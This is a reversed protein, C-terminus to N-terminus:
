LRIRTRLREISRLVEELQRPSDRLAIRYFDELRDLTRSAVIRRARWLPIGQAAALQRAEANIAQAMRTSAGRGRALGPYLDDWLEHLIARHTNTPLDVLRQPRMRGRVRGRGRPLRVSRIGSKDFARLFMRFVPHHREAGVLIHAVSPSATPVDELHTLGGRSPIGSLEGMEGAIMRRNAMNRLDDLAADPNPYQRIFDDIGREGTHIGFDSPDVGEERLDDLIGRLRRSQAPNLAGPTPLSCIEPTTSFRCWAGSRRNRRWRHGNGLNVEADYEGRAIRRPSTNRVVDLEANMEHPTLEGGSKHATARLTDRHPGIAERDPRGRRLRDRMSRVRDRVARVARGPAEVIARGAARLGRGARRPATVLRRRFRRMTARAAGPLARATQRALARSGGAATRAAVTRGARASLNRIGAQAGKAGVISMAAQFGGNIDSQIEGAERQLEEATQATAADILNKILSLAQLVLAIKGVAITWGGVTTIITACVSIVPLAIPAAFGFTVLILAGMIAAVIAALATISGLIIALGTAIDAASKLLNGLPDRRWQEASFLNAGGSLIMNLGGVAGAIMSRPDLLAKALGGWGPWRINSVAGFYRQGVLRMAIGLREGAGLQSIPRGGALQNIRDLEALRQEEAAQAAQERQEASQPDVGTVWPPMEHLVDIQSRQGAAGEEPVEITELGETAAGEPSTAAAGEAGAGEVEAGEEAGPAAEPEEPTEGEEAQADAAAAPDFGEAQAGEPVSAVEPAIAPAPAAAANAMDLSQGSAATSAPTTPTPAPVPEAGGAPGAAGPSPGVSTEEEEPLLQLVGEAAGGGAEMEGEWPELAPVARTNDAYREQSSRLQAELDFSSAILAQGQQDLQEAQAHLEDPAGSMSEVQSRADAAQTQHESLRQDLQDLQQTGSDITSRSQTNLEAARAADAALSDARGRTQSVASDMTQSEAGVQEIQGGQERANAAAEEDEPANAANEAALSGAEGAMPGTDEKGEDAKSQFDPAQSAVQAQKEESVGLAQEAQGVVERRYTAHDQSKSIGEEAKSVEASVKALNGRTTEANSHGEAAQARLQTGQERFYQARAALGFMAEDAAPNADLPDGASDVPAIPVPPDVAVEPAPETQSAATAFAQDALSSAQEAAGIAEEGAGEEGQPQEAQEGEVLPDPPSEAEQEVTAASQNIGPSEEAPRDVDPRTDGSVEGKKAALEGRDVQNAKRRAEAPNPREQESEDIEDRFRQNLRSEVGGGDEPHRYDSPARQVMQVSGDGGTQQLVHTAEHAMLRTDTSSEGAGLWIDQGHTFARAKLAHATQRAASDSHVRVGGLNSGLGAELQSRVSPALPAGGGPHSLAGDVVSGTPAAGTSADALETQVRAPKDEEEYQQQVVAQDSPEEEEEDSQRQVAESREQDCNRCPQVAEPEQEDGEDGEQRQIALSQVAEKQDAPEEEDEEGQRQVAESREEDCNQCPQVIEPEQQEEEDGEQRQIASPQVMEEKGASEEAEEEAAKRQVRPPEVNGQQKEECDACPQVVEEESQPAEEETTQRQLTAMRSLAGPGLPTIAPMAGGSTVRDAAADAEREFPDGARSIALKFQVGGGNNSNDALSSPPGHGNAGNGSGNASGSLSLAPGAQYFAGLVPQPTKEAM